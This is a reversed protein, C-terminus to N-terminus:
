RFFQEIYKSSKTLRFPFFNSIFNANTDNDEGPQQKGIKDFDGDYTIFNLLAKMKESTDM